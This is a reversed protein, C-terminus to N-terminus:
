KERDARPPYFWDPGRCPETLTVTVSVQDAPFTTVASLGSLDGRSSMTCHVADGDLDVWAFVVLGEGTNEPYEFKHSFAGPAAEFSEILQLPHRLEGELSWAQFLSVYVKGGAGAEPPLRIEGTLEVLRKPAPPGSGCGSTVGLAALVASVAGARVCARFKV